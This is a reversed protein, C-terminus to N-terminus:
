PLWGPKRMLRPLWGASAGPRYAGPQFGGRWLGDFDRGADLYVRWGPLVPAPAELRALPTLDLRGLLEFPARLFEGAQEYARVFNAQQEGGRLGPSAFVANAVVQQRFRTDQDEREVIGIGTGAAVVTNFFVAVDRPIDNHPQIRVAPGFYNVFLNNYLAINGEGQFLAENPNQYFFNGYIQYYDRAGPGRTPWHGVLVNPRAQEPLGNWSAKSFVNHRIITSQRERRLGPYDPRGRQHKIQLNYGLTQMVLNYEILGAVFPDGGDSDGLYMGTGAKQIINGRIVWNWAPCKTSIAVMQQNYDHNRILLNELTIHHAWDAHGEAKVGNVPLGRGDLVLDRIVVHSSNVISVTNHGRRALFVPPRARQAARIVIPAGPRGNLRHVPLGRRYIGPLLLLEDGPQLRSLLDRYTAPTGRYVAAEAFGPLCPMVVLSLASLVAAWYIKVFIVPKSMSM